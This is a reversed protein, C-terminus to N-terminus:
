PVLAAEERPPLHVDCCQNPSPLNETEARLDVSEQPEFMYPDSPKQENVVVALLGVGSNLEWTRSLTLSIGETCLARRSHKRHVWLLLCTWSYIWSYSVLM